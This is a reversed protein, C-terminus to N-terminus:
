AGNDSKGRRGRKGSRRGEWAKAYVIFQTYARLLCFILGRAGDRIGARGIYLRWFTLPPLLLMRLTALRGGREVYARAATTTDRNIAEFHDHIEVYERRRLAGAIAGANGELRVSAGSIDTADAVFRGRERAFLRIPHGYSAAASKMAVGLYENELALRFGDGDDAAASAIHDRLDDSAAETADLSLVWHGTARSLAWNKQAYVSQAARQYVTASFERALAVTGDVSFADVVIIEGFSAVSELCRRVTGADNYCTVIVSVDEPRM